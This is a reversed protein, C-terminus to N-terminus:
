GVAFRQPPGVEIYPVEKREKTSCYGEGRLSKETTGSPALHEGDDLNFGESDYRECVPCCRFAWRFTKNETHICLVDISGEGSCTLCGIRAM